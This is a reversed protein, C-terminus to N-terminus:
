ELDLLAFQAVRPYRRPGPVALLGPDPKPALLQALDRRKAACSGLERWGNGAPEDRVIASAPGMAPRARSCWLQEVRPGEGTGSLLGAPRRSKFDGTRATM